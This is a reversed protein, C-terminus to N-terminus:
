RHVNIRRPRRTSKQLLEYVQNQNFQKMNKFATRLVKLYWKAEAKTERECVHFHQVGISFNARWNGRSGSIYFKPKYNM